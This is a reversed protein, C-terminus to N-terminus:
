SFEVSYTVTSLALNQSPDAGLTTWTPNRGCLTNIPRPKRWPSIDQMGLMMGNISWIQEDISSPIPPLYFTCYVGYNRQCYRRGVLPTGLFKTRPPEVFKTSSLPCLSRLDPPPLGRTM